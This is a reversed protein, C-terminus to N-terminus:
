GILLEYLQQVRQRCRESFIASPTGILRSASDLVSTTIKGLGNQSRIRNGRSDYGYSTRHGAPDIDAAV